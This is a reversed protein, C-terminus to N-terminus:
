PTTPAAGSTASTAPAAAPGSGIAALFTVLAALALSIVTIWLIVSVSVPSFLFLSATALVAIGIFVARWHDRLVSGLGTLPGGDISAGARRLSSSVAGRAATAPRSRGGFWALLAVVVGATLWASVATTLYRTLTIWFVDLVAQAQSSPASNALFSKAVSLGVSLLTMGAAIGIGIGMVLRARRRSIAVAVLVLVALVPILYRTVPITIDYILRAEQLQTSDLLVISQDAAPPLPKDELVTLGRQVLEDQVAKAIPETDLVVQDGELQLPGGSDDGSLLRILGEQLKTNAVVWFEEFRPSNVIKTAVQTVLSEIAGSIAPALKLVVAPPLEAITQQVVDNQEITTMLTETTRNVLADKIAREEVLPAVTEVYRETDTLTRQGWFAVLALPMLLSAIVVLAWAVVGRGRGSKATAVDAVDAGSDSVKSTM